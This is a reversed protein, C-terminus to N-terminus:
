FFRWCECLQPRFVTFYLFPLDIHFHSFTVQLYRVITPNFDVTKRVVPNERKRKGDYVIKPGRVGPPMRPAYVGDGSVFSESRTTAAAM